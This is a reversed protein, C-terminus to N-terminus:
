GFVTRWITSAHVGLRQAHERYAKVRQGYPVDKLARRLEMRQQLTLKKLAM